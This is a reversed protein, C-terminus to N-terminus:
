LMADVAGRALGFNEVAREQQRRAEDRERSIVFVETPLGLFGL